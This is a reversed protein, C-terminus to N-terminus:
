PLSPLPGKSLPEDTPELRCDCYYGKCELKPNPANQPLVSKLWFSMRKVKGNLASCTRCHKETRGLIWKAKMDACAMAQGKSLASGYQNVWMELRGYITLEGRKALLKVRDEPRLGAEKANQEVFQLFGDIYNMQTFIFRDREMQEEPTLEDEAVGCRAAGEAWAQSLRRRIASAMADWAQDYSLAGVWLGRAASRLGRRFASESM